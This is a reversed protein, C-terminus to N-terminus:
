GSAGACIADLVHQNDDFVTLILIAVKQNFQRIIKVAEIGDVGPMEIDMLIVDPALDLIETSVNRATEFSGLLLLDKSYNILHQLSERLSRNDDYLVIGISM